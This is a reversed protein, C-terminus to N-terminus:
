AASRGLGVEQGLRTLAATLDRYCRDLRSQRSRPLSPESRRVLSSVVPALLREECKIFFVCVQYGTETLRYSQTGTVKVVLDKARLKGLDYRLQSLKYTEPTKGLYRCVSEHLDKTRFEGGNSLPAFEALAKMLALLRPDDLKLGPTRRKGQVTPKRLRALGGRDLYTELVDEQVDLFRDNVPQM